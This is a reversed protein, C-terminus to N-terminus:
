SDTDQDPEVDYWGNKGFARVAVVSQRGLDVLTGPFATRLAERQEQYVAIVGEPDINEDCFKRFEALAALKDEICRPESSSPEFSVARTESKDANATRGM